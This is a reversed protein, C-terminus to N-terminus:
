IKTSVKSSYERRFMTYYQILNTIVVNFAGNSELIAITKDPQHIFGSLIVLHKMAVPETFLRTDELDYIEDYINEYDDESLVAGCNEFLVVLSSITYINLENFIGVIQNCVNSVIKPYQNIVDKGYYLVINLFKFKKFSFDVERDEFYKRDVLLGFFTFIPESITKRM